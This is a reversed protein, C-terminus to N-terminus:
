KKEEKVYKEIANIVVDTMTTQKEITKIKFKDRLQPDIKFNFIVKEERDEKSM